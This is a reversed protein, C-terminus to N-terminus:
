EGKENIKLLREMFSDIQSVSVQHKNPMVITTENESYGLIDDNDYYDVVFVKLSYKEELRRFKENASFGYKRKGYIGGSEKGLWDPLVFLRRDKKLSVGDCAFGSETVIYKLSQFDQISIRTDDTMPNYNLDDMLGSLLDGNNDSTNNTISHAALRIM